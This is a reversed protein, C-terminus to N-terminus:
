HLHQRLWDIATPRGSIVTVKGGPEPLTLVTGGAERVLLSPAAADWPQLDPDVMLAATGLAVLAHGHADTYSRFLRLERDLAEYLPLRGAKAFQYRDGRAVVDVYPDFGGDVTLQQDGEWAGGGATAHLRRRLGPLDVVGVVPDGNHCLAILTAYLPLGHVFSTTGDIPDVLWRWETAPGDTGMEEGLIEHEPFATRLVQRIASEAARDLETVESRDAKWTVSFTKGQIATRAADAAALAVRLENEFPM